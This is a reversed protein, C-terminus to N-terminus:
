QKLEFKELEITREVKYCSLFEFSMKDGKIIGSYYQITQGGQTKFLTFNEKSYWNVEYITRNTALMGVIGTDVICELGSHCFQLTICGTHDEMEKTDNNLMQAPYTGSWIASEYASSEEKTCSSSVVCILTVGIISFFRKLKM